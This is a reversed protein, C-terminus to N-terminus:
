EAGHATSLHHLCALHKRCSVLVVRILKDCEVRCAQSLRYTEWYSLFNNSSYLWTVDFSGSQAGINTCHTLLYISRLVVVRHRFAYHIKLLHFVTPGRLDGMGLCPNISM